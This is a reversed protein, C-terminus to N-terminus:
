TFSPLQLMSLKLRNMVIFNIETFMQNLVEPTRDLQHLRQAVDWLKVAHMDNILIRKQTYWPQNERTDYNFPDQKLMTWHEQAWKEFRKLVAIQQPTVSGEQELIVEHGLLTLGRDLALSVRPTISDDEQAEKFYDYARKLTSEEM